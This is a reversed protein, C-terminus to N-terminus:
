REERCRLCVGRLTVAISEVVFGEPVKSHGRIQASAGVPVDFLRSCIRCRAHYHPHTAAEYQTSPESSDTVCAALGAQVFSGLIEYVTKRSVHRQQRRLDRHLEPVTHHGGKNRLLALLAIRQRTARLGHRALEEALDHDVPDRKM